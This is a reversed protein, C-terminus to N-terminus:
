KPGELIIHLVKELDPLRKSEAANYYNKDNRHAGILKLMERAHEPGFIWKWPMGLNGRLQSPADKADDGYFDAQVQNQTGGWGVIIQYADEDKTYITFKDGSGPKIAYYDRAGM